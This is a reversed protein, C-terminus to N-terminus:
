KKVKKIKLQPDDKQPMIKNFDENTKAETSSVKGTAKSKQSSETKKNKDM